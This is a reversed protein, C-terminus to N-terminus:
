KLYRTHKILCGTEALGMRHYWYRKDLEKMQIKYMWRSHWLGGFYMIPMVLLAVMVSLSVITFADIM